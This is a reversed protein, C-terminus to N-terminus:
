KNFDWGDFWQAILYGGAINYLNKYGVAKLIQLSTHGLFGDKSLIYITKDKPIENLRDRIEDAPIHLAETLPAKSQEGLTRVDLILSEGIKHELIVQGQL